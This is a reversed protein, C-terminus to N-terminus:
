IPQAREAAETPHKLKRSWNMRPEKLKNAECFLAAARAAEAAGHASSLTLAKKRCTLWGLVGYVAESASLEQRAEAIKTM